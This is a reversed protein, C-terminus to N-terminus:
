TPICFHRSTWWFVHMKTNGAASKMFAEFQFSAVQGAAASHFITTPECLSISYPLILLRRACSSCPYIECIYHQPFFGSVFSYM